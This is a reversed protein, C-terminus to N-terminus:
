SAPRATVVTPIGSAVRTGDAADRQTAIAVLGIPGFAAYAVRRVEEDRDSDTWIVERLFSLDDRITRRVGGGLVFYMILPYTVGMTYSLASLDDEVKSVGNTIAAKMREWADEALAGVRDSVQGVVTTASA